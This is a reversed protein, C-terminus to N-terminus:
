LAQVAVLAVVVVTALFKRNDFRLSVAASTDQAGTGLAGSIPESSDSSSDASSGTDSGANAVAQTPLSAPAPVSPSSPKVVIASSSPASV